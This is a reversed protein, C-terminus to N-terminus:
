RSFAYWVGVRFDQYDPWQPDRVLYSGRLWNVSVSLAPPMWKWRFRVGPGSEAFNAWTQGKADFDANLNVYLQLQLGGASSGVLATYGVRNQTNLIVDNDYRSLFVLDDATDAFVGTSEGQLMNGVGRAFAVGGRYDPGSPRATSTQSLYSISEGTEAWGTLGKWTKSVVGVGAIVSNESLLSYPGLPANAAGGSGRADGVFRLSVYPRLPLSGVRFEVKAQAYAFVDRWRRSYMPYMWAVFRVRGDDPRLHRYATEAERAIQRNPSRRALNFWEVATQDDHLV